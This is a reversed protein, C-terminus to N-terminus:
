EDAMRYGVGIETFIYRPQDPDVEIKRRANTMHVRLIKNDNNVYPGWIERMIARYTMVKGANRALFEVVRYEMPTLPIEEGSRLVKMKRFDIKLDGVSFVGDMGAHGNSSYAHRLATRVRALLEVTGFPKTLYDDAGLDLAAAKETEETRASLVVIPTQTWERVSRIIDKGDMDPLGLDLLICNPCHSFILEKIEIGTKACMTEYGDAELSLKVFQLIGSDDEGILILSRHNSSSM